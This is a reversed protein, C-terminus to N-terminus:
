GQRRAAALSADARPPVKWGPADGRELAASVLAFLPVVVLYFAVLLAHTLADGLVRGARRWADWARRLRVRAAADRVERGRGSARLEDLLRGSYGVHFREDRAIRQFLAAISARDGQAPDARALDGFHVGLARFQRAAQSEAIFVFALFRM